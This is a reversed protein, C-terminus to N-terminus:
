YAKICINHNSYRSLLSVSHLFMETYHFMCLMKFSISVPDQCITGPEFKLRSVPDVTSSLPVKWIKGNETMIHTYMYSQVTIEVHIGPVYKFELAKKVICKALGVSM